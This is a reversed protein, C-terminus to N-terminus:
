STADRASQVVPVDMEIAFSDAIGDGILAELDVMRLAVHM